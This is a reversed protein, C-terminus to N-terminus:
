SAPVVVFFINYVVHVNLDSLQDNCQITLLIKDNNEDIKLIVFTM